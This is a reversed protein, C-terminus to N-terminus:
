IDKKLLILDNYDYGLVRSYAEEEVISLGSLDYDSIKRHLTFGFLLRVPLDGLLDLFRYLGRGRQHMIIFIHGGPKCYLKLSDLFAQPDDVVTIVSFSVVADFPGEAQVAKQNQINLVKVDALAQKAKEKSLEVMQDSVDTAVVSMGKPYFALSYGTGCGVELVKDINYDSLRKVTKKVAKVFLPKFVVDYLGSLKEYLIHNSGPKSM